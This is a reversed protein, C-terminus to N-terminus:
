AAGRVMTREDSWFHGAFLVTLFGMLSVLVLILANLSDIVFEIGYPAAYGGIEYHVPGGKVVTILQMVSLVLSALVSLGVALAGLHKNIGTLLLCLLAATLPLIVILVPINSM